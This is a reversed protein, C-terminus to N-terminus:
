TVSEATDDTRNQHESRPDLQCHAKLPSFETRGLHGTRLGRPQLLEQSPTSIFSGSKTQSM